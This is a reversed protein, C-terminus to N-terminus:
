SSGNGLAQPFPPPDCLVHSRGSVCTHEGNSFSKTIDPASLMLPTALVAYRFTTADAACSSNWFFFCFFTAPILIVYLFVEARYQGELMGGKGITLMDM